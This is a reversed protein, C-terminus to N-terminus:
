AIAGFVSPGLVIGAILQGTIAPQGFRQMVEGFVRGVLILVVFEAIFTAEPSGTGPEASAWAPTVILSLLAVAVGFRLWCKRVDNACACAFPRPRRSRSPLKVPKSLVRGGLGIALSRTALAAETQGLSGVM